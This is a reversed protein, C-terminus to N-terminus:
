RKALWRFPTTSKLISLRLNEASAPDLSVDAATFTFGDPITDEITVVVGNGQIESEGLNTVELTFVAPGGVAITAPAMPDTPHSGNVKKIIQIDASTIALAVPSAFGTLICLLWAWWVPPSHLRQKPPIM